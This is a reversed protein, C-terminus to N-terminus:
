GAPRRSADPWNVQDSGPSGGPASRSKASNSVMDNAVEGLAETDVEVRNEDDPMRQAGAEGVAEGARAASLHAGNAGHGAADVARDAGAPGGSQQQVVGGITGDRDALSQPRAVREEAIGLWHRRRRALEAGEGALGGRGARSRNQPTEIVVTEGPAPAVIRVLPGGAGPRRDDAEEM